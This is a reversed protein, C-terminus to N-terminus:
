DSIELISFYIHTAMNKRNGVQYFSFFYSFFSLPLLLWSFSSCRLSTTPSPYFFCRSLIEQSPFHSASFPSLQQLLLTISVCTSPYDPGLTETAKLLKGRKLLHDIHITWNSILGWASELCAFISKPVHTHAGTHEPSNILQWGRWVTNVILNNAMESPGVSLCSMHKDMDMHVRTHVTRLHYVHETRTHVRMGGGAQRCTMRGRERERQEGTMGEEEQQGGEVWGVVKGERGGGEERTIWVTMQRWIALARDSPKTVGIVAVCHSVFVCACKCVCVSIPGNSRILKYGLEIKCFIKFLHCEPLNHNPVDLENKLAIWKSGM